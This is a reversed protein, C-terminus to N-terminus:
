LPGYEHSYKVVLLVGIDMTLPGLLSIKIIKVELDVGRCIGLGKVRIYM